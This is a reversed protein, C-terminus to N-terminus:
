GLLGLIINSANGGPMNKFFDLVTYRFFMYLGAVVAVFVFVGLIIKILLGITLGAM